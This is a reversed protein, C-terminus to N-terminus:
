SSHRSTLHICSFYLITCKSFILSLVFVGIFSFYPLRWNIDPDSSSPLSNQSTLMSLWMSPLGGAGPEGSNRKSSSLNAKRGLLNVRLLNSIIAPSLIVDQDGATTEGFSTVEAIVARAEGAGALVSNVEPLQLMDM